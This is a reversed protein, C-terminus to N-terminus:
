KTAGCSCKYGTIYKETGVKVKETGVREEDVHTNCPEGAALHAKMHAKDVNRAGCANCVIVSKYVDRTEYVDRTGYVPQWNHEHKKATPKSTTKKSDNSTKVPTNGTKTNKKSEQNVANNDTTKEAADANEGTAKSAAKAIEEFVANLDKDSKASKLKGEFSKLIEDLNKCDKYEKALNDKFSAIKDEITSYKAAETNFDNLLNEIEDESKCVEIKEAFSDMLEALAKQDETTYASVDFETVSAAADKAAKNEASDCGSLCFAAILCVAMAMMMIVKKTNNITKM